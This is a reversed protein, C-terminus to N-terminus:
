VLEVEDPLKGFWRNRGHPCQDNGCGGYVQIYLVEGVTLRVRGVLSENDHDFKVASGMWGALTLPKSKM